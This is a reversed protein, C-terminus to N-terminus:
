STRSCVHLFGTQLLPQGQDPRITSQSPRGPAPCKNPYVKGLFSFQEKPFMREGTLIESAVKFLIKQNRKASGNIKSLSRFSTGVNQSKPTGRKGHVSPDPLECLSIRPRIAYVLVHRLCMACKYPPNPARSTLVDRRIRQRWRRDSKKEMRMEYILHYAFGWYGQFSQSYSRNSRKIKSRLCFHGCLWGAM